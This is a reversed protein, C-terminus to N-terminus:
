AFLLRFLLQAIQLGVLCAHKGAYFLDRHEGKHKRRLGTGDKKDCDQQSEREEV